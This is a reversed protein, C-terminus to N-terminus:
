DPLGLGLLDIVYDLNGLYDNFTASTWYVFNNKKKAKTFIDKYEKYIKCFKKLDTKNKIENKNIAELIETTALYLCEQTYARIESPHNYYIYPNTNVSKDGKEITGNQEDDIHVLEHLIVHMNNIIYDRFMDLAAVKGEVTKYYAISKNDLAKFLISPLDDVISMVGATDDIKSSKNTLVYIIGKIRFFIGPMNKLSQVYEDACEKLVELHDFLKAIDDLIKTRQAFLERNDLKM